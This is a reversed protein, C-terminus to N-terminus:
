RTTSAQLLQSALSCLGIRFYQRVTDTTWGAGDEGGYEALLIVTELATFGAVARLVFITRVIPSLSALWNRVRDRDPGAIMQELDDASVGAADLDDDEICGVSPSVGVPLALIGPTSREILEIAAKCLAWRGNKRARLPDHCVSIEATEIATEVLRISEEGEGVLMSAMNYLGAAIQDFIGEMGEFAKEVTADDKPQGDMLGTMQKAFAYGGDPLPQAPILSDVAPTSEQSM